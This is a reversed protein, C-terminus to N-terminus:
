FCSHHLVFAILFACVSSAGDRRMGRTSLHNIQTLNLCNFHGYCADLKRGHAQVWLNWRCPFISSNTWTTHDISSLLTRIDTSSLYWCSWGASHSVFARVQMNIGWISFYVGNNWSCGIICSCATTRPIRWHQKMIHQMTPLMEVPKWRRNRIQLVGRQKGGSVGALTHGLILLTLVFLGSSMGYSGHSCDLSM